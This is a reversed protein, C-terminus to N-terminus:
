REILGEFLLSRYLMVAREVPVRAARARLEYAANVTWMMVQGAVLPDVPPMSGETIGDIILGAFRHAIRDAEEIVRRRLEPPLSPLATARLLPTGETLQIFLLMSVAAVIRDRYSGGSRAAASLTNRIAAHSREFCALLLDDKAELHHYFSGKTVNLRASIDAVSTGRYGRDNILRTAVGLFRDASDPLDDPTCTAANAAALDPLPPSTGGACIGGELVDVMRSQVRPWDGPDYSRLWIPLNYLNELLVHTRMVGLLKEREEGGSHFFSRAHRFIAFYRAVLVSRLPDVLVRLDTLRVVSPLGEGDTGELSAFHLSVLRRVRRSPTPQAGAEAVQRELVDLARDFCAAALDEKRPFYYPVSTSSLGIAKGVEALSLAKVGRENIIASAADVLRRRREGFRSTAEPRPPPPSSDPMLRGHRQRDPM